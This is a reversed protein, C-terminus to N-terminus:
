ETKTKDLLLPPPQGIEILEQLSGERVDLLVWQRDFRLTWGRAGRSGKTYALNASRSSGIPIRSTINFGTNREWGWILEAGARHERVVEPAGLMEICQQMTSEGVHLENLLAPDPQGGRDVRNIRGSVCAPLLVLCAAM